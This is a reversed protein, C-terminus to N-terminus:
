ACVFKDMLVPVPFTRPHIHCPGSRPTFRNRSALLRQRWCLSKLKRTPQAHSLRRRLEITTLEVEAHEKSLHYVFPSFDAYNERGPVVPAFSLGASLDLGDDLGESAGEEDEEHGSRTPHNRQSALFAVAEREEGDDDGEAALPSSM